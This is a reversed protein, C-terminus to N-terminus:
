AGAEELVDDTEEPDDELEADDPIPETLDEIETNAWPHKRVDLQGTVVDAVLRTRYERILDIESQTKEIVLKIDSSEQDIHRVLLDQEVREPFAFRYKRLKESTLHAITNESGDAKFVGKKAVYFLVYMLFRPNDADACRPRLRHLAKQFGVVAESQSWMAARGVEGGECVLLDGKRVTYREYEDPRIDMEPLNETGINDWQVDTNRLYPILHDGSIRKADLMKGLEVSYRLRLGMVKWHAPVDGLWDIGSPKLPVTPDLGRTVAQHIIAQKQENLLEILRRKAKILRNVKSDLHRVFRVIQEQEASPPLPLAVSALADRSLELFTTGQGRSVFEPKAVCLVYYWFTTDTRNRPVLIRCGQNVCAEVGTVALHGIPARTSMVICGPPALRTGCSEYGARSLTRASQSITMKGLRGLDAPTIWVVGGDWHIPDPKPTAGNYISFLKRIRVTGWHAPVSGLWPKCSDDAMLHPKIDAIM